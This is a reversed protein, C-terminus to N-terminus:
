KWIVWRPATGEDTRERPLFSFLGDELSYLQEKWLSQCDVQLARPPGRRPASTGALEAVIGKSEPSLGLVPECLCYTVLTSLSQFFCVLLDLLKRSPTSACLPRQHNVPPPQSLMLFILLFSSGHLSHAKEPSQSASPGPSYSHAQTMPSSPLSAPVKLTQKLMEEAGVREM